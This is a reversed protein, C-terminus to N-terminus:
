EVIFLVEGGHGLKRAKTDTLLGIPTSIVAIGFGNLVKPLKHKKCYVRSSVKSIRTIKNIVSIKNNYYKLYIKIKTKKTEQEILTYDNLFCEKKLLETIQVKLKSSFVIIYEKKALYGNRINTLLDSVPDQMSM